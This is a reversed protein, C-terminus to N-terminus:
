VPCGSLGLVFGNYKPTYERWHPRLELDEEMDQHRFFLRKDAWNSTVMDSVLVLDGINREEGGLESPKDMAFVRYLTTGQPITKLDETFPQKYADSFQIDGTPEFRLRFPFVPNSTLGGDEGFRGWDSLGVQRIQRTASAFKAAGVVQSSDIEPIHNSFNNKFFNWSEQGNVSFMAVLNASDMGDRLFKLGMGPATIPPDKGPKAAFSLRAIGNSSGEFIGTYSHNGTSRWEVQGVAGVTHIYKDRYGTMWGEYPLEDGPAQFTPCMRELLLGVMKFNGFWDLPKSNELCNSWIKEMKESSSLAIYNKTNVHDVTSSPLISVGVILIIAFLQKMM